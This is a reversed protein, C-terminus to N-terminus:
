KELKYGISSILEIFNPFSTFINKCDKVIIPKSCKLGAILFSMAIRHDEYSEISIPQEILLANPSGMISMGDEFNKHAVGLRTFGDSVAKLRDSEKVRLEEADRIITEGEAFAAAISIIPIEDIINPIINGSLEVGRLMSKKIILDACPEGSELRQNRAEIEAGMNQLVQLFGTRSPNM